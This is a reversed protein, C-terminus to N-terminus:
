SKIYNSYTEIISIGNMYHDIEKKIYSITIDDFCNVKPKSEIIAKEENLEFMKIRFFDITDQM